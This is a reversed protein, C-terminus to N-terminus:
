FTFLFFIMLFYAFQIAPNPHFKGKAKKYKGFKGSHSQIETIILSHLSLITKAMSRHAWALTHAEPFCFWLFLAHTNMETGILSTAHKSFNGNM